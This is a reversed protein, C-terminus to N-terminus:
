FNKSLKWSRAEPDWEVVTPMNPEDPRHGMEPYARILEMIAHEFTEADM